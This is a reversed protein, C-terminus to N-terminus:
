FLLRWTTNVLAHTVMAARIGGAKLYARGYFLGAIAALPAFRWNPFQRFWVHALGFAASAILLGAIVSSTWRALWQQLLGRFFFEESLAVVWLMGLFTAPAVVLAQMSLPHVSAFGALLALTAGCPLFYLYERLGIWWENRRPIFGFGVGEVGRVALVATMGLRRWMLAGLVELKLRPLPSGYLTPFVPSLMVAAMLLLFAIDTVPKKPLLAYWFSLVLALAAVQALASWRFVGLPVSYLCYPIVGTLALLGVRPYLRPFAMLVYFAAEALFAPLLGLAIRAPIDQQQSYFYAAIGLVAWVVLLALLFSRMRNM